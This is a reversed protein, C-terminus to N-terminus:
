LIKESWKTKERDRERVSVDLAEFYDLIRQFEKVPQAFLV